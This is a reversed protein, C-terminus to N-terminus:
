FSTEKRGFVYFITIFDRTFDRMMRVSLHINRSKRRQSHRIYRATHAFFYTYKIARLSHLSFNICRFQIQHMVKM